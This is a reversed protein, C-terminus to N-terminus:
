VSEWLINFSLRSRNPCFTNRMGDMGFDYTPVSSEIYLPMGIMPMFENSIDGNPRIKLLVNSMTDHESPTMTREGSKRNIAMSTLVVDLPGTKKLCFLTVRSPLTNSISLNREIRISMGSPSGWRVGSFSGRTVLIPFNRLFVLKSSIGWNKLTIPPEILRMPGRGSRGSSSSCNM